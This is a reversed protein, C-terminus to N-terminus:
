SVNIKGQNWMDKAEQEGYGPLGRAGCDRCLIYTTGHENTEDMDYKGVVGHFAMPHYPCPNLM